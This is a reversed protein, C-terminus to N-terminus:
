PVKCEEQTETCGGCRPRGGDCAIKKERCAQALSPITLQDSRFALIMSNARVMCSVGYARKRKEGPM